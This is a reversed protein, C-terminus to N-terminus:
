LSGLWGLSGFRSFSDYLLLTGDPIFSDLEILAGTDPFSGDLFVAVTM